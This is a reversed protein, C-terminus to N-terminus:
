KKKNITLLEKQLTEKTQIDQLIDTTEGIFDVTTEFLEESLEDIAGENTDNKIGSLFGMTAYLMLNPTMYAWENRRSSTKVIRNFSNTYNIINKIIENFDIFKQVTYDDTAEFVTSKVFNVYKQLIEEHKKNLSALEM